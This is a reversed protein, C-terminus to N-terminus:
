EFASDYKGGSTDISPTKVPMGINSGVAGTAIPGKLVPMGGPSHVMQPMQPITPGTALSSPGAPTVPGRAPAPPQYGVPAGNSFTLPPKVSAEGASAPADKLKEIKECIRKWQEPNPTWDEGLMDKIGQLWSKFEGITIKNEPTSM